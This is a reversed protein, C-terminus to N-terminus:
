RAPSVSSKTLHAISADPTNVRVNHSSDTSNTRITAYHLAVRERANSIVTGDGSTFPAAPNTVSSKFLNIDRFERPKADLINVNFRTLNAKGGNDRKFTLGRFAEIEAVEDTDEVCM